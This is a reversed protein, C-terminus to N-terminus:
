GEQNFARRLIDAMRDATISNILKHPNDYEALAAAVAGRLRSFEAEKEQELRWACWAEHRDLQRNIELASRHCSACRQYPNGRPVPAVKPYDGRYSMPETESVTSSM